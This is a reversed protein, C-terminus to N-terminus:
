HNISPYLRKLKLRADSTTFRWDVTKGKDNRETQWAAVEQKLAVKDAIRQDLCQQSLVSLEIEAMNLWSGHKPTYHFELRALIRKAEAPEFAEYLASPVHTNLNDQVVRILVAAPFYVDVLDRMCYAYDVKTRQDTVEVHRWGQLPAFFMFLNSVGNRKYEYDYREPQGPVTPLPQRVEDVLQKNTEDFCVIPHQPDEPQTYVDLVDEM